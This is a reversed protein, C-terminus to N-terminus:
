WGRGYQGSVVPMMASSVSISIQNMKANNIADRVADQNLEVGIVNRGKQKCYYWYNRYWLICGCGDRKRDTWGTGSSKYVIEGDPGSKGSLVFPFFYPLAACRIWLIDKEM